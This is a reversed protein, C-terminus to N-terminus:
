QTRQGVMIKQPDVWWERQGSQGAKEDLIVKVRQKLGWKTPRSWDIATVFGFRAKNRGLVVVRSGVRIPTGWVDPMEAITTKM